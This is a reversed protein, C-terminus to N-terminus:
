RSEMEAICHHAVTFGGIMDPDQHPLQHDTSHKSTPPTSNIVM